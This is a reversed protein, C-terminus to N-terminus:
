VKEFFEEFIRTILDSTENKCRFYASSLADVCGTQIFREEFGAKLLIKSLIVLSHIFDADNNRLAKQIGELGQESFADFLM